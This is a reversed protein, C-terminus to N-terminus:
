NRKQDTGAVPLEIVAARKAEETAFVYYQDTIRSGRAHGLRAQLVQQPVGDMALWTAHAKRLVHPTIPIPKGDRM